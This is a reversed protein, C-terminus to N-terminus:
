CRRRRSSLAHPLVRAAPQERILIAAAISSVTPETARQRNTPPPAATSARTCSTTLWGDTTILGSRRWRRDTVYRCTVISGSRRGSRVNVHRWTVTSRTHQHHRHSHNHCHHCHCLRCRAAASEILNSSIRRSEILNSSIRHSEILNSTPRCIRPSELRQRQRGVQLQEIRVAQLEMGRMAQSITSISITPHSLTHCCYRPFRTYFCPAGGTADGAQFM